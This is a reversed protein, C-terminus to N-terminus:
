KKPEAPVSAAPVSPTPEAIKEEVFTLKFDIAPRDQVPTTANGREYGVVEVRLAKGEEITFTHSGRATFTANDMYGFVKFGYGRYVAVVSITHSGPAVPGTLIDFSKVSYLSSASEDARTFVQAGDLAYALKVLRFKTSMKNSHLLALQAGIGGGLVREKLMTIRAKTRWSREKLAQVRQELGRLRISTPVSDGTTVLEAPTAADPAPASPSAPTAGPAAAPPAPAPAPAPTAGPQAFAPVVAISFAISLLTTCFLRGM